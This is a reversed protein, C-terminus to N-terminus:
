GRDRPSPSTYLLCGEVVRYDPMSSLSQRTFGAVPFPRLGLWGKKRLRWPMSGIRVNKTHLGPHAVRLADFAGIAANVFPGILWFYDDLLVIHFTEEGHHLTDDMHCIFIQRIEDVQIEDKESGCSVVLCNKSYAVSECM